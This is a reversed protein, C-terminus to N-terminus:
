CFPLFSRGDDGFPSCRQLPSFRSPSNVPGFADDMVFQRDALQLVGGVMWHLYGLRDLVADATRWIMWDLMEVLVVDAGPLPPLLLWLLAWAPLLRRVLADGVVRAAVGGLASVLAAMGLWPSLLLVAAVTLVLSLGVLVRSLNSPKQSPAQTSDPWRTWLLYGVIVILLPYFQYYPKDWLQQLHVVALPLPALVTLWVANLFWARPAHVPTSRKSHHTATSVAYSM